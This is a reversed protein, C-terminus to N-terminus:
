ENTNELYKELEKIDRDSGSLLQFIYDGTTLEYRNAESYLQSLMSERIRAFKAMGDKQPLGIYISTPSLYQLIYPSHSTIIIKCNDTLQAIVRLYSQFLSPHISNEPEEIGIVSLGKIDALLICTFLLFVRKAGDSLCDFDIPIKLNSDKVTMYYVKKSWEYNTYQGFKNREKEDLDVEHIKVDIINTFLQRFSDILLNYKNPYQEKLYYIIRPMSSDRTITLEDIDRRILPDPSYAMDVDLHREIHSQINNIKKIFDLYYLNDYASLKNVLLEYDEILISNDCRGTESTRYFVDSYFRKIFQKYRSNKEGKKIKLWEETIKSCEDKSKAWAFEYGYFLYYTANEFNTQLEFEIRYNQYFNTKNFPIDYLYSMTRKKEESSKGIFEIGLNIAELINSKGFSNLSVLAIINDFVLETHKINRYGSVRVKKLIMDNKKGFIFFRFLDDIYYM